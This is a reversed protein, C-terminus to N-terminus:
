PKWECRFTPKGSIPNKGEGIRVFGEREYFRLARPNSQNVDLIVSQPCIRKAEGLLRKAAGSGWFKPDVVIQDLYGSEKNIVVFGIQEGDAEAVIVENNPVLERTWRDRWWSMRASFEIEPMAADWARRWLDLAPELDEARYPRLRIGGM